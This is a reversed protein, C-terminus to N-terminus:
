IVTMVNLCYIVGYRQVSQLIVYVDIYPLTLKPRFAQDDLWNALQNDHHTVTNFLHEYWSNVINLCFLCYNSLKAVARFKLAFDTSAKLEVPAEM